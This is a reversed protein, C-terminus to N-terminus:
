GGPTNEGQTCVVFLTLDAPATTHRAPHRGRGTPALDKRVTVVWGTADPTPRSELVDAPRRGLTRGDPATLAYGGSLVNEEPPCMLTRPTGDAGGKIVGGQVAQPQVTTQAAATAAGCTMVVLASTGMAAAARKLTRSIVSRVGELHGRVEASATEAM